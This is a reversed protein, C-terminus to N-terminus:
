VVCSAATSLAACEMPSASLGAVSDAVLTHPKSKVAQSHIQIFAIEHQGMSNLLLNAAQSTGRVM